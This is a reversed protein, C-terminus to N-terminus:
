IAVEVDVVVVVIIAVGLEDIVLIEGEGLGVVSGVIAEAFFLLESSLTIM